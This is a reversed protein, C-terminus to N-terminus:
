TRCAGTARPPARPAPWAGLQPTLHDSSVGPLVTLGRSGPRQILACGRHGPAQLVLMVGEDVEALLLVSCLGRSPDCWVEVEPPVSSASGNGAGNAGGGPGTRDGGDLGGGKRWTSRTLGVRRRAFADEATREISDKTLAMSLRTAEVREWIAGSLM